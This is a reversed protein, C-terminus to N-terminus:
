AADRLKAALDDDPQEEEVEWDDPLKTPANFTNPTVKGKTVKEIIRLTKGSPILDGRLLSAVYSGSLDCIKAFDSASLRKYFLYEHLNM